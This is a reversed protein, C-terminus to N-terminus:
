GKDSLLPAFPKFTENHHQNCVTFQYKQKNITRQIHGLNTTHKCQSGRVTSAQCQKGDDLHIEGRNFLGKPDKPNKGLLDNMEKKKIELQPYVAVEFASQAIVMGDQFVLNGLGFRALENGGGEKRLRAGTKSAIAGPDLNFAWIEAAPVTDKGANEPRVPLYYANKSAIGHGTPTAGSLSTGKEGWALKPNLDTEGTLNYARVSHRGVVIVKDNVIGGIYLDDNQRPLRWYLKGTRVDICDLTPSDYASLVARGGSVIPAAGRWRNEALQSGQQRYGGISPDYVPQKVPEVKRYSHAWLLSRSMIDVGVVMGSNTPCLIIGEGASLFAGQFRRISDGPMTNNPRGLKQSWLLTPAKLHWDKVPQLNKPDLCLLRVIGDLEMLVYLRGNLPLPPGLFVAQLSLHFANSSKDAEEETLGPVAAAAM